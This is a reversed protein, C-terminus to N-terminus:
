TTLHRLYVFAGSPVSTDTSKASVYSVRVKVISLANCAYTFNGYRVGDPVTDKTYRLLGSEFNIYGRVRYTGIIPAETLSSLNAGYELKTTYNAMYSVKLACIVNDLSDLFEFNGYVADNVWNSNQAGLYLQTIRKFTITKTAQIGTDQAGVGYNLKFLGDSGYEGFYVSDTPNNPDGVTPIATGSNAYVFVIFSNEYIVPPEEPEEPTCITTKSICSAFSSVPTVWSADSDLALGLRRERIGLRTISFNDEDITAGEPYALPSVETILGKIFPLYAKDSVLKTM